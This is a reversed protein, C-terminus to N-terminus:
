IHGYNSGGHELLQILKIGNKMKLLCRQYNIEVIKIIILGFMMYVIVYIVYKLRQILQMVM